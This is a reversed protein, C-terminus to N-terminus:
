SCIKVGFVRERLAPNAWIAYFRRLRVTGLDHREADPVNYREFFAQMLLVCAQAERTDMNSLLEYFSDRFFIVGKFHTEGAHLVEM